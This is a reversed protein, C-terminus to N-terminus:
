LNTFRYKSYTKRLWEQIKRLEDLTESPTNSLFVAIKINSPAPMYCEAVKGYLDNLVNVFDYLESLIKKNIRVSQPSNLLQILKNYCSEKYEFLISYFSAGITLHCIIEEIHNAQCIELFDNIFVQDANLPQLSKSVHEEHLKKINQLWEISYDYPNTDVQHHHVPCLLILNEEVNYNGGNYGDIHRPGNKKPSIIHAIQSQNIETSLPNNCQPFACINGSKAYLMKIIKNPIAM